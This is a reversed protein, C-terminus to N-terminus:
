AAPAARGLRRGSVLVQRAAGRVLDTVRIQRGLRAVVGRHFERFAASRLKAPHMLMFRVYEAVVVALKREYEDRELYVLGFKLVREIAAPLPAHNRFFYSSAADEHRRTFTLEEHVFGFDCERLLDLCAEVDADFPNTVNYFERRARVLAARLLLTTPSGFLYDYPAGLLMSRGVERGSVVPSEPVRRPVVADGLRRYSAVVGVSPHKEALATMKAICEPYISDDAHVIKVYRSDPEIERLARNANADGSVFEPPALVRIRPETAEYRRAIELTADTSCNDVIVYELRDYTQGLVSEICEALYQEGNYVPTVVSVLPRAGSM